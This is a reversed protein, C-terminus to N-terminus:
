NMVKDTKINFPLCQCQEMLADHYKKTTCEEYDFTNQCQRVRPDLTLFSDTVKMEKVVNLNYQGEGFLRLPELVVCISM